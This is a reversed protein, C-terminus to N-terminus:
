NSLSYNIYDFFDSNNQNQMYRILGPNGELISNTYDYSYKKDCNCYIPESYINENTKLNKLPINEFTSGFNGKNCSCEINQEKNNFDYKINFLNEGSKNKVNLNYIGKNKDYFEKQKKCRSTTHIKKNITDWYIISAIIFFLIILLINLFIEYLSWEKFFMEFVDIKSNLELM